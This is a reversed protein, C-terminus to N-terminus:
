DGQAYVQWTSGVLFGADVPLNIGTIGSSAPGVLWAAAAAVEEPEVLRKLASADVLRRESMAGAALGAELAPTRTFGPSVANVRVGKPGWEAALTATLQIVAAKAAAYAHVPAATMGAVSAINVIAGRGRNAMRSGVSRCMLFTGTLDIALERNWNELRVRDAAHMKGLIGAANVLGVAPGYREEVASVAREVGDADSVDVPDEWYLGRDIREAAASVRIDLAIAKVKAGVLAGLIAKGIGSSAGTVLFISM